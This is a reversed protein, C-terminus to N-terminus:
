GDCLVTCREFSAFQARRRMAQMDRVLRRGLHARRAVEALCAAMVVTVVLITILM